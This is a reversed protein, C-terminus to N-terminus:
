SEPELAADRDARELHTKMERIAQRVWGSVSQETRDYRRGIEACSEGTIYRAVLVERLHPPLQAMAADLDAALLRQEEAGLASLDPLVDVLALTEGEEDSLPADLSAMRHEAMPGARRESRLADRWLNTAVTALYAPFNGEPKLSHRARLVRRWAEQALDGANQQNLTLMLCRGFLSKWHREVLTDLADGDPPDSRVSAILQSDSWERANPLPPEDEKLVGKPHTTVIEVTLRPGISADTGVTSWRIAPPATPVRRPAPLGGPTGSEEALGSSRRELRALGTPSNIVDGGMFIQSRGMAMRQRLAM